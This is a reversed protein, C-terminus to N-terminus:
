ALHGKDGMARMIHKAYLRGSSIPYMKDPISAMVSVEDSSFNKGSALEIIRVGSSLLEKERKATFIRKPATNILIDLDSFDGDDVLSVDAGQTALAAIKEESGSYIRVKAGLFLLLESLASGIRGYGVVGISLESIDLDTETMIRGLAGHATIKANEVLFDEDQSADYIDAGLLRLGDSVLLPIGYGAIMVGRDALVSLESFAGGGNVTVGDRTTPIPLIILREYPLIRGRCWEEIARACVALRKGGGLRIIKMNVELSFAKLSQFL